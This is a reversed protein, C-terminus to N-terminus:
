SFVSTQRPFLPPKHSKTAPAASTDWSHNRIQGHPHGQLNWNWTLVKSGRWCGTDARGTCGSSRNSWAPPHFALTGNIFCSREHFVEPLAWMELCLNEWDATFGSGQTSELCKSNYNHGAKLMFIMRSPAKGSALSPNNSLSLGWHTTDSLLRLLELTVAGVDRSAWEVPLHIEYKM